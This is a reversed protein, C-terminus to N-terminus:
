PDARKRRAPGIRISAIGTRPACGLRACPPTFQRADVRGIGAVIPGNPPRCFIHPLLSSASMNLFVFHATLAIPMRAPIARAARAPLKSAAGSDPM